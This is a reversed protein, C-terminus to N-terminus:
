KGGAFGAFGMLAAMEPDVGEIELVPPAKADKEKKKELKREKRQRRQAEEQEEAWGVRAEFSPETAKAAERQRKNEEFRAQVEELSSREVRMSMGLARMQKKGNIHDLYSISDRMVKGSEKCLFGAGEQTDANVLTKTGVRARLDASYDREIRDAVSLPKRVVIGLNASIKARKAEDAAEDQAVACSAHTLSACRLRMKPNACALAPARAEARQRETAKAAYEDKDWKRRQTNDV